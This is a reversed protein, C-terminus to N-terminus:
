GGTASGMALDLACSEDICMAGGELRREALRVFRTRHREALEAADGTLGALVEAGVALAKAAVLADANGALPHPVPVLPLGGMGMVQAEARGLPGFEDSCVVVTPM